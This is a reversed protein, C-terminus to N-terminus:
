HIMIHARIATLPTSTNTNTNAPSVIHKHRQCNIGDVEIVKVHPVIHAEDGQKEALLM